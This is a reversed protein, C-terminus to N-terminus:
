HRDLSIAALAADLLDDITSDEPAVKLFFSLRHDVALTAFGHALSWTATMAGLERLSFDDSTPPVGLTQSLFSLAALRSDRLAPRSPDLRDERFMLSFLAPNELAFKVYARIPPAKIPPQQTGTGAELTAVLRTFGIAALDSLLASLDPFHHAPAGHSVGAERAIARLTLAQVGGQKLLTEAATLLAEKLAGHHYRDPKPMPSIKAADLDLYLPICLPLTAPLDRNNKHRGSLVERVEAARKATEARCPPPAVPIPTELPSFLKWM